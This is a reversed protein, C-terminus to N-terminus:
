QVLLKGIGTAVDGAFHIKATRRGLYELAQIDGCSQANALAGFTYEADPINIDEQFDATIQLFLGTPPGGKHLQGTSHLFRPGYGVTTAIHSQIMVRQRLATLAEDIEPTQEVYILIALYDGPHAQNLLDRISFSTELPVMKGPGTYTKLIEVTKGKSLEVNPQDFPNVEMLAGALATAYEWLYFEGGIDYRDSLNLQIFPNGAARLDDVQSDSKGSRDGDFRLDIFLRDDGYHQPALLPEGVIPVVGKGEKGLSEAILQEAWRGFNSLTPSTLFTLKDRGMKALTAIVTGLWVGPNEKVPVRSSISKRRVTARELLLSVDIGILAAPVMGFYSLVSYRGGISSPNTFVRLFGEQYALRELPSGSDTIAVFCGGAMERGLAKDVIARFHRYGTLTELTEGSKSSVLFLTHAPNIVNTITLVWDPVTSDLVILEPYGPANGFVSGLVEPGLSSGGMGLLVVHRVGKGNVDMAFSNLSDVQKSMLDTVTLWGLRDTIERPDPKWVTYDQRWIRTPIERSELDILTADM